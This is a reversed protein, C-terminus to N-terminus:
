TTPEREPSALAADLADRADKRRQIAHRKSQAGTAGVDDYAALFRGAAETMADLRALADAEMEQSVKAAQLYQEAKGFSSDALRLAADREQRVETLAAALAEARTEPSLDHPGFYDEAEYVAEVERLRIEAERDPSLSM